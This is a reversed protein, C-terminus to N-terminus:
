RCLQLGASYHTDASRRSDLDVMVYYTLYLIKAYQSVESSLLCDPRAINYPQQFFVYDPSLTRLDLWKGTEYNYGNICGEGAWFEEAGESDFHEHFYGFGKIKNRQPVAVIQVNFLPDAKLLAYVDKLTTWLAPRHCIFLINVQEGAAKKRALRADIEEKAKLLWKYDRQQRIKLLGTKRLTEWIYPVRILRDGLKM